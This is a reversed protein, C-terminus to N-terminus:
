EIGGNEELEVLVGVACYADETHDLAGDMLVGGLGTEDLIDRAEEIHAVAVKLSARADRLLSIRTAEPPGDALRPDEIRHNTTM